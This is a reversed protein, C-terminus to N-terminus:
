NNQSTRLSRTPVTYSMYIFYLLFYLIFTLPLTLSLFYINIEVSHFKSTREVDTPASKPLDELTLAVESRGGKRIDSSMQRVDTPSSSM